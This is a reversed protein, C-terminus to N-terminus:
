LEEMDYLTLQADDLEFRAHYYAITIPVGNYYGHFPYKSARDLEELREWYQPLYEHIHRLERINKNACCWCSVRDLIDYLEIYGSFTKITPENWYIGNAHCYQLCDCETMGYQVLPYVISPDDKIREPEDAAIGIYQIIEANLSKHFEKIAAVKLTTGWRCRRGCWGYGFEISGGRKHVEKQTQNYLFETKPALEVFQVSPPLRERLEEMVQYVASFEVGSNYFVVYDLPAKEAILKLVMAVSDKGGSCSAVYKPM